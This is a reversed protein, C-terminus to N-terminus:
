CLCVRQTAATGHRQTLQVPRTLWSAVRGKTWCSSLGAPGIAHGAHRKLSAIASRTQKVNAPLYLASSARWPEWARNSSKHQAMPDSCPASLAKAWRCSSTSKKRLDVTGNANSCSSIAFHSHMYAHPLRSLCLRRYKCSRGCHKARQQMAPLPRWCCTCAAGLCHTVTAGGAVSVVEQLSDSPDQVAAAWVRTPGGFSSLHRVVAQHELQQQALQARGVSCGYSKVVEQCPDNLLDFVRPDAYCQPYAASGFKWATGQGPAQNGHLRGKRVCRHGAQRDWSICIAAQVKHPRGCAWSLVLLALLCTRRLSRMAMLAHCHPYTIQGGAWLIRAFHYVHALQSKRSSQMYQKWLLLGCWEDSGHM